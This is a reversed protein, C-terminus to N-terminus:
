TGASTGDRVLGFSVLSKATAFITHEALRPMWGLERRVKENSTNKQHRLEPVM